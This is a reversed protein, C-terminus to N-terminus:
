WCQLQDTAKVWPVLQVSWPVIDMHQLRGSILIPHVGQREAETQVWEESVDEPVPGWEPLAWESALADAAAEHEGGAPGLTEDIVPGEAAHGLVVHAAEHLLTFLIMDMRGKRGSLAIVPRDARRDLIFSAGSVKGSRFGPVYVLRVGVEAFRAPLHMVGSPATVVRTLETALSALGQASYTTSVSRKMAEHRACALWATQQPTPPEHMNHRRAAASFSPEEWITRLGYLTALAAPQRPEEDPLMGREVLEKVPAIDRMRKRAAALDVVNKSAEDLARPIRRGSRPVTISVGREADRCTLQLTFGCAQAVRALSSVRLNGDGSLLQSLRAPTVGMRVAVDGKKEGSAEVMQEILSGVAGCLAAAAMEAAPPEPQESKQPAEEAAMHREAIVATGGRRRPARPVTIEVSGDATRATMSGAFGAAHLLRGLTSMRLNGDGNVIQSLRGATVGMRAALDTRPRCSSEVVQEVLSGVAGALAAAAADGSSPRLALLRDDNSTM